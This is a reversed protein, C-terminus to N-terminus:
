QPVEDTRQVELMWVNTYQTDCEDCIRVEEIEDTHTDIYVRETDTTRCETCQRYDRM